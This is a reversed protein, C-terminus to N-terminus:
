HPAAGGQPRSGQTPQSEAGGEDLVVVTAGEKGMTMKNAYDCAEQRSDFSALPDEFDNENVDWRGDAGPSVRLVVNGKQDFGM